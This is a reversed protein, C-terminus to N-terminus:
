LELFEENEEYQKQHVSKRLNDMRLDLAASMEACEYLEKEMEKTFYTNKKYCMQHELSAWFYIM